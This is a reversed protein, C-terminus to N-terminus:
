GRGRPSEEAYGPGGSVSTRPHVTCVLGRAFRRVPVMVVCWREWVGEVVMSEVLWGVCDEWDHWVAGDWLGM